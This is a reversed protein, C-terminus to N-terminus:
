LEEASHKYWADAGEKEFWKVVNRLAGFDELRTGCADCYFVIIPTGWFRQRSVCWDPRNEIMEYMRDQGWAPLWKVTPIQALAEQRFTETAGEKAQDMKIFWQETARFIVPNHCRWCHPYSHETKETHLLAGRSKVLEIIPQNADWVRKGTYEPLGNRLIGKEDVNSTADLGYKVGTMFDEAGHSPATHVVGTGTDMTVYDALVGLIKRDLFPHQFNLRELKRGPFHALERPNALGCKEAADKALKAAVIYVEAGSEL